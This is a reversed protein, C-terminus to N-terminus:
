LTNYHIEEVMDNGDYDDDNSDVDDGKNVSTDDADTV